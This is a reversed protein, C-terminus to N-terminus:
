PKTEEAGDAPKENLTEKASSDARQAEHRLSDMLYNKLYEKMWENAHKHQSGLVESVLLDPHEAFSIIAGNTARSVTRAHLFRKSQFVELLLRALLMEIKEVTFRALNASMPMTENIMHVNMIQVRWLNEPASMYSIQTDIITEILRWADAETLLNNRKLYEYEGILPDYHRCTEAHIDMIIENFLNEKSGFNATIQGATLNAMHAITRVTAGEYGYKGFAIVAAEKLQQATTKGSADAKKRM